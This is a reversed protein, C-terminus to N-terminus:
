KEYYILNTGCYFLKLFPVKEMVPEIFKLIKVVNKPCFYPVISFFLQKRTRFGNNEFWKNITPPWYSKEGRRLHYSSTNEIFKLIPNFGNPELVIIKNSLNRLSKIAQEPRTLHHLVGRIVIVDFSNKKFMKHVNYVDRHLFEIKGQMRPEVSKNAVRIASQAYDFGIIKKPNVEKLIEFTFTGDGCGVDLININKSAHDKLLKILEESQKKTAIYASYNNFNTYQYRGSSEIDDNFSYTNKEKKKRVIIREKHLRNYACDTSFIM